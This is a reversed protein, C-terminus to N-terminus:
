RIFNTWVRREGEPLPRDGLGALLRAMNAGLTRMIQLGEQDQKVEEPTNGHVMPWYQSSVLPMQNITIYKTLRDLAATAGARRCSVVAAAPKGKVLASSSFFARDLLACLAGNPGAYYVPSGIVLGDARSMAEILANCLDGTLACRPPNMERCKGCDACGLVPKKGIQFLETGVGARNLASGVEQLATYTCGQAHPSGNILLVNM